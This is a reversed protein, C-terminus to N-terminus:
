SGGERLFAEVRRLEGSKRDYVVHVFAKPRAALARKLETLGVPERDVFYQSRTSTPILLPKCGRCPTVVLSSPPESPLVVHEATTEVSDEIIQIEAAAVTAFALAALAFRVRHFSV